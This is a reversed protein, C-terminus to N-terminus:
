ALTGFPIYYQGNTLNGADDTITIRLFGTTTLSASTGQVLTQTLAAAATGTSSGEITAISNSTSTVGALLQIAFPFGGVQMTSNGDVFMPANLDGGTQLANNADVVANGEQMKGADLEAKLGDLNPSSM